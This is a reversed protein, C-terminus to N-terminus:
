RQTIESVLAHDLAPVTVSFQRESISVVFTDPDLWREVVLGAFEGRIAFAQAFAAVDIQRSWVLKKGFGEEGVTVREIIVDNYIETTTVVARHLYGAVDSNPDERWSIPGASLQTIWPYLDAEPVGTLPVSVAQALAGSAALVAATIFLTLARLLLLVLVEGSGRVTLAQAAPSYGV